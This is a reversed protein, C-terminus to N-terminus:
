PPIPPHQYRAITRVNFLKRFKVVRSDDRPAAVPFADAQPEFGNILPSKINNYYLIVVCILM